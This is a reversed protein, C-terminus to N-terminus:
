IFDCLNQFLCVTICNQKKVENAYWLEFKNKLFNKAVANVTIDLPQFYHTMNNPVYVIVCDNREICEKVNETTQGTFVDYILLSKQDEPLDLDHKKKKLYPFIVKNLLQICKEENSWHNPTFTVDFEMPFEVDRPLCRPTKGEYILQMPLFDGTMSVAFTGTIQKKKGKGQLPVSQAGKEHLTSNGTVVYPLPTQDFNIILDNPISHLSQLQRIKRQFDFKTEAILAPAVPIRATTAIRRTMKRGLIDMRYLVKRAWDNSLTLHGGNEVLLSRDNAQVIGKAVANIVSSTVPAGKLRLATITDITKKMLTEPLLTPRGRDKMVIGDSLDAGKQKGENYAKKFDSISQKSLRPYKSSLLRFTNANGNKAAHEGIELRQQPTWACYTKRKNGKDHMKKLENSVEETERSTLGSSATVNNSTSQPLKKFYNLLPM